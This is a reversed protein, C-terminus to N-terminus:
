ALLQAYDEALGRHLLRRPSPYGHVDPRDPPYHGTMVDLAVGPRSPRNLVSAALGDIVVVARGQADHGTVVRRVPRIDM